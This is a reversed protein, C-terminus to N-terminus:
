NRIIHVVTNSKSQLEFLCVDGLEIGNCRAFTVWGSCLKITDNSRTGNVKGHKEMQIKWSLNTTTLLFIGGLSSHLCMWQM